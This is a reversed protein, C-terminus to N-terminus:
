PEVEEFSVIQGSRYKARLTWVKIHYLEGVQARKLKSVPTDMGKIDIVMPHCLKESDNGWVLFDAKYRVGGPLDFSPQRIFWTKNLVLRRYYEAEAKSDFRIGDVVTPVARYKSQKTVGAQKMATAIAVPLKRM